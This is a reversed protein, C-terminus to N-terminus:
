DDSEPEYRRGTSFSMGPSPKSIHEHQRCLSKGCCNQIRRAASPSCYELNKSQVPTEARKISLRTTLWDHPRHDRGSGGHVLVSRRAGCDRTYVTRGRWSNAALVVFAVSVKADATWLVNLVDLGCYDVNETFLELFRPECILM